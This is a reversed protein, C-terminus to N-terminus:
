TIENLAAGLSIAHSQSLSKMKDELESPYSIGEFCNSVRVERTMNDRAYEVMGPVLSMGGAMIVENVEKKQKKEFSNLVRDVESFLSQSTNSMVRKVVDEKVGYSTVIGRAQNYDISAKKAIQGIFSNGAIELSHTTKLVGNEVVSLLTSQEGMDIIATVGERQRTFARSLSLMEGELAVVEMEALSAIKQYQEIVENPIAILNVKVEKKEERKEALFWDLAVESIPLPIYQRSHHEVASDIEEEKMPPLKLPTFFSVFDPLSFYARRTGIGAEDLLTSLANAIEESSFPLNGEKEKKESEGLFERMFVEGYNELTLDDERGSLEVVKVSSTGIDVGLFNGPKKSFFPLNIM